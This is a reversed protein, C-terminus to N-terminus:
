RELYIENVYLREGGSGANATHGFKIGLYYEGSLSSVDLSRTTEATGLVVQSTFASGDRAGDVGFWASYYTGSGSSKIYITSLNTLDIPDDTYLWKYVANVDYVARGEIFASQMIYTVDPETGYTSFTSFIEEGNNYVYLTLEVWSGGTYVYGPKVVWTSGNYRYLAIPHLTIFEDFAVPAQSHSGIWVWVDGTVPSDPEEASAYATVIDNTIIIAIAGEASSAPLSGADAYNTINLSEKMPVVINM